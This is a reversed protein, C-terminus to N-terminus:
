WSGWSLYPSISMSLTDVAYVSCVWSEFVSLKAELVMNEMQSGGDCPFTPSSHYHPHVPERFLLLVLISPLQKRRRRRRRNQLNRNPSATCNQQVAPIFRFLCQLFGAPIIIFVDLLYIRWLVWFFGSSDPSSVLVSQSLYEPGQCAPPKPPTDPGGTHWDM